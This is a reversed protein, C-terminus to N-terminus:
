AHIKFKTRIKLYFNRFLIKLENRFAKGSLSYLIFTTGHNSYQLFEAISHFLDVIELNPDSIYRNSSNM